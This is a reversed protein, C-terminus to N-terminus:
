GEGGKRAEIELVNDVFPPEMGMGIVPGFIEFASWLESEFEDAGNVYLYRYKPEVKGRFIEMGRKTLKARCRCNLNHSEFTM